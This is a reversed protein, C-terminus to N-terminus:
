KEFTMMVNRFELHHSLECMMVGCKADIKYMPMCVHLHQKARTLAVYLCRLDERDDPCDECTKPFEGQIPNILFVVEYELGKASHITTLNLCDTEKDLNNNLAIDDLFDQSSVYGEAMELLLPADNLDKRLKEYQQERADDSKRGYDITRAKATPYYDNIIYSLQEYVTKGKLSILIDYLEHLDEGCMRKSYRDSILVDYGALRIEDSLAEATKAGIGVILQLIRSWALDDDPHLLVKVFALSTQVIDRDFFKIGGFKHFVINNKMLQQEIMASQRSSRMIVAMDAYAIGDKHYDKIQNVVAIAEERDDNYMMFTPKDGHFQGHLVKPIGELANAMVANSLDLIEQSSRYNERLTIRQCGPHRSAFTLINEIVAGRFKYISQNDDGVVALNKSKCTLLDLIRDQIINTDQYEDCMVYQFRYNYANCVEPVDHLVDYTCKLLDDFDMRNKSEKAFQYANIVEICEDYFEDIGEYEFSYENLVDSLVRMSNVADSNINMLVSATPFIKVDRNESRLRDRVKNRCNNMIVKTDVDSLITFDNSYGVFKAYKRLLLACFSHFTTATVAKGLVSGVSKCVRDKMEQAAKNTFTLLLISDGNVGTDLMYAVRSVLTKTKGTGAGALILYYGDIHTAAAKQVINLNDLYNSM